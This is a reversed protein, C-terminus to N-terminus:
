AITWGAGTILKKVYDMDNQNVLQFKLVGRRLSVPMNYGIYEKISKLSSQVKKVDVDANRTFVAEYSNSDSLMYRFANGKNNFEGDDEIEKITCVGLKAGGANDNVDGEGKIAEDRAAIAEDMKAAYTSIRSVLVDYADKPHDKVVSTDEEENIFVTYGWDRNEVEGFVIHCGGSEDKNYIFNINGDNDFNTSFGDLNAYDKINEDFYSKDENYTDFGAVLQKALRILSKAIKINDM